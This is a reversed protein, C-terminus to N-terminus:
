RRSRARVKVIERELKAAPLDTSAIAAVEGARLQMLQAYVEAANTEGHRVPNRRLRLLDKVTVDPRRAVDKLAPTGEVWAYFETVLMDAEAAPERTRHRTMLDEASGYVKCFKDAAEAGIQDTRFMKSVMGQTLGTRSAIDTQTAIRDNVLRQVELHIARRM